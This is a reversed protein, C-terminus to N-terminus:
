KATYVWQLYRNEISYFWAIVLTAITVVSMLLWPNPYILSCGVAVLLLRGFELYFIWKKQEMIAGCNVLTIIIVGTVIVQYFASVYNDFGMFLFLLVTISIM